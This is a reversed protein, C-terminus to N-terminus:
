SVSEVYINGTNKGICVKINSVYPTETKNYPRIHIKVRITKITEHILETNGNLSYEEESFKIVTIGDRGTNIPVIPHEQGNIILAYSIYEAPPFHDPIYESVFLSVKDVSSDELINSSEITTDEYNSRFLKIGQLAIKKRYANIEQITGDEKEIAIKDQLPTDSALTLRIFYSYPFCIAASGYTYESDQYCIDDRNIYLDKAVRTVYTSGDDSTEVKRLIINPDLSQIVAKCVAKSAMLTIVCEVEKDDYNIAGSVVEKKDRTCLRSYEYITFDNDDLIYETQSKDYILNEFGDENYVFANGSYGNGAISIIDYRVRESEIALAGMTKDNLTEANLDEFSSTYVPLVASYASDQSCLVSIDEIQERQKRVSELISVIENDITKIADDIRNKTEIIGNNVTHMDLLIESLQRQEDAYHLDSEENLEGAVFIPEYAEKKILTELTTDYSPDKALLDRYRERITKVSELEM